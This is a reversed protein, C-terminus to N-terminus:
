AEGETYGKEGGESQHEPWRHGRYINQSSGRNPVSMKEIRDEAKGLNLSM